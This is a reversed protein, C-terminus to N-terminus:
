TVVRADPVRFKVRGRSGSALTARHHLSKTVINYLRTTPHTAMLGSEGFGLPFFVFRPLYVVMM